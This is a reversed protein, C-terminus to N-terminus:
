ISKIKLAACLWIGLYLAFLQVLLHEEHNATELVVVGLDYAVKQHKSIFKLKLLVVDLLTVDEFYASHLKSDLLDAVLLAHLDVVAVLVDTRLLGITRPLLKFLVLFDLADLIM